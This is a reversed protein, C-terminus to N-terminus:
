PKERYSWYFQALRKPEHDMLVYGDRNHGEMKFILRPYGFRDYNGAAVFILSPGLYVATGSGAPVLFTERHQARLNDRVLLTIIRRRDRLSEHLRLLSVDKDVFRYSEPEFANEPLKSWDPKAIERRLLAILDKLDVQTDKREAWLDSDECHDGTTLVIPRHVPEESWGSFAHTLPGLDPIVSGEFLNHSGILATSRITPPNKSSVQGVRKGDLCIAWTVKAPFSEYSFHLDKPTPFEFPYAEWHIGPKRFVIRVHRKYNAPGVGYRAMAEKEGLEELIGLSLVPKVVRGFAPALPVLCLALTLALAARTM